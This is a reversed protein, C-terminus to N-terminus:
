PAPSPTLIPLAGPDGEIDVLTQAIWCEAINKGPISVVFFANSEDRGLPELAEGGQLLILSTYSTDPGARCNVGIDVWAVTMSVQPAPTNTPAETELVDPTLTPALVAPLQTASPGSSPSPTLTPWNGGSVPTPAFTMMMDSIIGPLWLIFFLALLLAIGLGAATRLWAARSIAPDTPWRSATPLKVPINQQKIECAHFEQSLCFRTQYAANPAAPSQCRFCLNDQSPFMTVTTRDDQMGLFPCTYSFPAAEPELNSSPDTPLKM